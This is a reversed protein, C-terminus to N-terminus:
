FRSYTFKLTAPSKSRNTRLIASKLGTLPFLEVRPKLKGTEDNLYQQLYGPINFKYVNNVTDRTGDFFSHYSDYNYDPVIYKVGNTGTYRLSLQEPITSPKYLDGDYYVPITVEARNIIINKFQPDNKIKELGPFELTTYIGNLYQLYTLTDRYGDNVHKVIKGPDATSLNHTFKNFSANRNTADMIFYFEKYTDSQDHMFLVIYNQNDGITTPSALSLSYLAPSASSEIQFYFGNFFSRFDNRTNSYFLMSTDRILYNGLEVPLDLGLQTPLTDLAPIEIGGVSFGTLPLATNSYYATDNYLRKNIESLKLYHKIDYSGRADLINLYLKVSDVTYSKTDDWVGGLRMETVFEAITSGYYPSQLEGLYSVNPLDTRVAPDFETYSFVSLTDTSSISVFESAPLLSNGIRTPNEECATVALVSALLLAARLPIIQKKIASFFRCRDTNKYFFKTMFSMIPMM